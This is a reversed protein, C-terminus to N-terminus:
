GEIKMTIESALQEDPGIGLLGVLPTIMHYTYEVSVIVAGGSEWETDYDVGACATGDAGACTVSVTLDSQNLLSATERVRAEIADEDSGFAAERAGERAANSILTTQNIMLGFDVVGLALMLLLPLVLAMEVLAAGREREGSAPTASETNVPSRRKSGFTWKPRTM